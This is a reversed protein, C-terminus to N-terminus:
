RIEALASKLKNIRGVFDQEASESKRQAVAARAGAQRAVDAAEVAQQVSSAIDAAQIDANRRIEQAADRERAAAALIDAADRRAAALEAEATRRLEQVAERQEAADKLAAEAEQGVRLQVFAQEYRDTADALQQLRASFKPGGRTVLTLDVAPDNTSGVTGTPDKM